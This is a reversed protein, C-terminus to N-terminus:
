LDITPTIVPRGEHDPGPWVLFHAPGSPIDSLVLRGFEDATATRVRQGEGHPHVELLAGGLTVWCDLRRTGDPEEEGVTVMLSLRQGTFNVTRLREGPETTSRALAAPTRTLEAVEAELMAVTLAYKVQQMLDPPVPDLREYLERVGGLIREDDTDLEENM